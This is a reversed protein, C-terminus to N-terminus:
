GLLGQLVGDLEDRRFAGLRQAAVRGARDIVVTYPLAGATNGVKRMLDIAEPGAIWIPYNIGFKAAFERVKDARDIGIGVVELGRSAYQQKAAVFLPVEERCPACWTAWFNCAVIRGQFDLLRRPTGQLDPFRASLLEAAGSRSQVALAGVLAGAAAAGAGIGALVLTKRRGPRM